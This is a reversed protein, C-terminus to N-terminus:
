NLDWEYKARLTAKGTVEIPVLLEKGNVGDRLIPKEQSDLTLKLSDGVKWSNGQKEISDDAAALYYFKGDGTFTIQRTFSPLAGAEPIV